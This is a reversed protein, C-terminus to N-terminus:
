LDIANPDNGGQSAPRWFDMGARTGEGTPRAAREPVDRLAPGLRTGEDDWQKIVSVMEDLDDTLIFREMDDPDINHQEELMVERTWDILGSWFSKGILIVPFPDIKLTQILTMSEFFEDMTGFGGPFIVFARAYKVFMVKRCFFYRFNLTHTQYENATQEMPLAINLGVSTGNAEYAGKNAAEMIGPGGGTIVSFGADVLHKGCDVAQQYYPNDPPTRASGFVTVARGVESMIEFGEVFESMIRFIRWTERSFDSTGNNGM